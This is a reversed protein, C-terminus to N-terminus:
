RPPVPLATSAVLTNHLAVIAWRLAATGKRSRTRPSSLAQFLAGQEHVLRLSDAHIVCGPPPVLYGETENEFYLMRMGLRFLGRCSGTGDETLELEVTGAGTHDTSFAGRFIGTDSRTSLTYHVAFRGSVSDLATQPDFELALQYDTADQHGVACVQGQLSGALKPHAILKIAFETVPGTERGAVPVTLTAGHWPGCREGGYRVVLRDYWSIDEDLTLSVDFRGVSDTQANTGVSRKQGELRISIPAGDIGRGPTEWVHGSVRASRDDSPELCGLTGAALVASLPIRAFRM